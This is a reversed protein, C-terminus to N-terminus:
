VKKLLVAYSRKINLDQLKEFGAKESFAVSEEFSASGVHGSPEAFLLYGGAKMIEALKTFLHQKDPVEHVVAFLLTFDIPEPVQSFTDENESILIPRIIHEVKAKEARIKLKKLMKEQIDFCYVKGSNGTMKALPLSFYGMASGYDVITMGPKIYKRLMKEPNHVLKRVPLLLLYGMWWPCIHTNM